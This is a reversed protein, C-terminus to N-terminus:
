KLRKAPKFNKYGSVVGTDKIFNLHNKIVYQLNDMCKLANEKYTKLEDLDHKPHVLNSAITSIENLKKAATKNIPYKKNSFLSYSRCSEVLREISKLKRGKDGRYIDFGKGSKILISILAQEAATRGVVISSYYYGLVYLDQAHSFIDFYNGDYVMAGRYRQCVSIHRRWMAPLEKILATRWGEMFQEKEQKRLNLPMYGGGRIKFTRTVKFKEELEKNKGFDAKFIWWYDNFRIVLIKASKKSLRKDHWEVDKIEKLDIKILRGINASKVKRKKFEIVPQVEDDLYVKYNKDDFIEIGATSFNKLNRHKLESDIYEKRAKNVAQGYSKNSKIYKNPIFITM